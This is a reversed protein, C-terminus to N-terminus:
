SDWPKAAFKKWNDRALKLSELAEAAAADGPREALAAQYCATAGSEDLLDEDVAVLIAQNQLDGDVLALAM